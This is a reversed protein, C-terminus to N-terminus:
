PSYRHVPRCPHPEVLDHHDIVISVNCRPPLIVNGASPQADVLAVSAFESLDLGTIPQLPHDLYRVLARNEARGIIGEYAIRSKVGRTEKLVHQLALASAIADPDPNNHPLVLITGQGAVAELLFALQEHSMM